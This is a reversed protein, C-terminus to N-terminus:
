KVDYWTLFYLGPWKGLQYWTPGDDFIYFLIAFVDVYSVLTERFAQTISAVGTLVDMRVLVVWFAHKYTLVGV